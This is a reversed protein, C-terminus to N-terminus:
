IEAKVSTAILEEAFPSSIPPPIHITGPRLIGAVIPALHHGLAASGSPSFHVNDLEWYAAKCRPIVEEPDLFAKVQPETTTWEELM